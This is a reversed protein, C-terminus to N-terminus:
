IYIRPTASFVDRNRTEESFPQHLIENTSLPDINALIYTKLLQLAMDKDNFNESSILLWSLKTTAKYTSQQSGEQTATHSIIIDRTKFVLFVALM